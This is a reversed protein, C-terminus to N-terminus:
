LLGNILKNLTNNNKVDEPFHPTKKDALNNLFLSCAEDFCYSAYEDDLYLIESPRCKYTKSM